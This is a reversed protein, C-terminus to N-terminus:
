VIYLMYYLCIEPTCTCTLMNLREKAFAYRFSNNIIQLKGSASQVTISM